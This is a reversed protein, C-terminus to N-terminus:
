VQRAEALLTSDPECLSCPTFGLEVAESVPLPQSEKRLLHACGAQHYRPRGDVVFVDVSMLAIRGADAPSVYQAAPEDPPDEDEYKDDEDQGAEVDESPVTPVTVPGAQAPIREATLTATAPEVVTQSAPGGADARHSASGTAEGGPAYAPEAPPREVDEQEGWAPALDEEFQEDKDHDAAREAAVQRAGVYLAVAALLSAAISGFLPVDSSGTLGFGLLVIAVLILLVSAVIVPEV